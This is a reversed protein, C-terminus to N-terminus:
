VKTEQRLQAAQPTLEPVRVRVFPDSGTRLSAVCVGVYAPDQLASPDYSPYDRIHEGLAAVSADRTRTAFSLGVSCNDRIATPVADSTQKQTIVLTVFLVSRGKKVLQATRARCQRVALESGDKSGKVADLDYFTHCEDIITLVLEFGPAPGSHWANRSGTKALVTAFRSRMESEVAGLVDAAQGVDDGAYLWARDRFEEYDGGGKGDIFVLRVPLGALQHLWLRILETKGYGPLGGVTIGTVGPLSIWRHEGWEDRGLYLALKRLDPLGRPMDTVSYPELLPDLRVARILLRGPRPQAVQVRACKWANAIHEAADTLQRRGGSKPLARVQVSWGHADARWRGKPYRLWGYESKGRLRVRTRTPGSLPHFVRGRHQDIWAIGVARCLWRWRVRYGLMILHHRKGQSTLRAFRVFSWVGWAAIVCPALVLALTLATIV